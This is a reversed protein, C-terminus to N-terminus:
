NILERIQRIYDRAKENYISKPYKKLLEIFDQMADNYKKEEFNIKAINFLCYSAKISEPKEKLLEKLLKIAEDKEGLKYYLGSLKIMSLDYLNEPKSLEAVESFLKIAQQLKNQKEAKEGKAYIALAKNLNKNAEILTIKELADNSVDSDTIQTLDTFHAIASDLQGNFYEIEALSYLAQYYQKTDRKFLDVIEKYSLIAGNIDDLMFYIDGKLLISPVRYTSYYHLNSLYELEKLAENLKGMRKYLLAINYSCQDATSTKPYEKIVSRYQAIIDDAIKEDLNGTADYKMETTKVLKYLSSLAYPSDKGKDIVWRYAEIAIDYKGADVANGAFNYVESGRATLTNDIEKYAQLAEKFNDLTTLYWAYLLKFGYDENEFKNKLIDLIYKKAEPNVALASLRGEALALDKSSKFLILVERIGNKYDGTIAYLQSLRDAFIEPSDLNERGVNLTEIAKQFLRLMLQTTSLEKYTNIDDRGIEIAQKWVEEAKKTEGERWYLEGLLINNKSDRHIKVYNEVFPILEANKNQAKMARIYADFYQQNTTDSKFLEMYLRSANVFDGSQEFSNALKYKQSLYGQGEAPIFAASLFVVFLIIIM